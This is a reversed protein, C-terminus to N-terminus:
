VQVGLFTNFARHDAESLPDFRGRGNQKRWEILQSSIWGMFSVNHHIREEKPAGDLAEPTTGHAKCYAVWRSNWDTM